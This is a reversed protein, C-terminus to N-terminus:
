YNLQVRSCCERLFGRLHWLLESIWFYLQDGRWDMLRIECRYGRKLSDRTFRGCLAGSPEAKGRPEKPSWVTSGGRFCLQLGDQLAKSVACSALCPFADQLVSGRHFSKHILKRGITCLSGSVSYQRCKVIPPCTLFFYVLFHMLYGRLWM